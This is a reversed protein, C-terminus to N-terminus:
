QNRRVLLWNEQVSCWHRNQIEVHTIYMIYPDTFHTQSTTESVCLEGTEINCSNGQRQWEKKIGASSCHSSPSSTHSPDGLQIGTAFRQSWESSQRGNWESSDLQWPLM